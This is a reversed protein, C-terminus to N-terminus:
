GIKGKKEGKSQDMKQLDEYHMTSIRARRFVCGFCRFADRRQAIIKKEVSIEQRKYQWNFPFWIARNALSVYPAILTVM